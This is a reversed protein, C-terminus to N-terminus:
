NILSFRSEPPPAYSFGVPSVLGWFQCTNGVLSLDLEKGQVGCLPCMVNHHCLDWEGTGVADEQTGM